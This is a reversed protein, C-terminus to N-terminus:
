GSSTTDTQPYLHLLHLDNTYTRYSVPPHCHRSSRRRSCHDGILVGGDAVHVSVLDVLEEDFVMDFNFHTPNMSLDAPARHQQGFKWCGYFVELCRFPTGRLSQQTLAQSLLPLDENFIRFYAPLTHSAPATGPQNYHRTRCSPLDLLAQSFVDLRYWESFEKQHNIAWEM